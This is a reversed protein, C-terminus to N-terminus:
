WCVRNNRFWFLRVFEVIKKDFFCSHRKKFFDKLFRHEYTEFYGELDHYRINDDEDNVFLHCIYVLLRIDLDSLKMRKIKKLFEFKPYSRVLDLTDDGLASLDIDDNDFDSIIDSLHEFWDSLAIIEVKNMSPEYIENNKLATIVDNSISYSTDDKSKKIRILKREKLAEFDSEMRLLKIERCDFFKTLDSTRIRSDSCFNVMVSFLLAQNVTLDLEESLVQLDKKAKNFLKTELKSDEALVIINEITELLNIKAKKLTKQPMECTETTTKKKM